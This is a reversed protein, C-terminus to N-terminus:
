NSRSRVAGGIWPPGRPPTQARYRPTSGVALRQDNLADLADVHRGDVAGLLDGGVELGRDDDLMVLAVDALQREQVLRITRWRL